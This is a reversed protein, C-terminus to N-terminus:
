ACRAHMTHTLEVRWPLLEIIRNIPQEAIRALVHRLYAYPEINNLLATGILSYIAAAREGGADSGAFLYNRRGLVLPRIAREASNNDIEIRGDECYRTLAGWRVLAYKIATALDSKASVKLLTAELWLRLEALVPAAHQQRQVRRVEPSQGRLEREIAYLLGIRRIAEAAIPSRDVAYIDYLKRRAHAWCAAEIITGDQYLPAFGAYADAQLIGRYGSLHAQPHLAKRDPSYRYWVAPPDHSASPRDDRVYAWLRATKTKGRGPDLVPVPTDDAHVKEGALVYRGIAEVLPSLLQAAGAVWDALTARELEVGARRYIRQQRYLPLHDCYKGILIQALMGPAPLGREIPRSPACAQVVRACEGCSLKPRVHRIVKFYGPVFDLMESVDEGLQRLAAGCEPCQCHEPAHIITERPLHPPLARAPRRLTPIQSKVPHTSDTRPLPASEEQAPAHMAPANDQLADLAITLQALTDDVREASRGFRWRKLRAIEAKLKEILADRGALLQKLTDIDDPAHTM